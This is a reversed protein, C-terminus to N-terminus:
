TVDWQLVCFPDRVLKINLALAPDLRPNVMGLYVILRLLVEM